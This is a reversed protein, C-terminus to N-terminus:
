EVHEKNRFSIKEKIKGIVEMLFDDKLILLVTGYASVGVLVKIILLIIESTNIINILSCAIFMVIGSIIYNKSLIIYKKIDITKRVYISQVIFISLEAIITAICAGVSRFHRILIINLVVNTVAGIIISINYQKQKKTPLLYQIGLIDTMGSLLVLISLLNLLIGVREYGDGYFIPVFEKSVSIIGFIMPIGIFFIYNFSNKIYKQINDNKGNAFENAIRPLMITGLSTLVTLLLKIIKQAQEYFGVEYMDGTINGIMVRDLVTYIQTAIQPILLIITPKMHRKINLEKIKVKVIYNKLYVIIASSGLFTSLVYIWIYKSLDEPTKVLVFILIISTFKIIINRLIIKKFEEMGQFFWGTDLMTAIFELVFIRYYIAYESNIGFKLYFLITSIGITIFRMIIIEFFIKSREKENNQVYAIERQAYLTSGLMGILLFYTMTSYTYSYIGIAEAGLARSLYPTTILPVVMALIQYILNYIYNQTVSKKKM